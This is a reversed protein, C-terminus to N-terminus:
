FSREREQLIARINNDKVNELEEVKIRENRLEKILKENESAL